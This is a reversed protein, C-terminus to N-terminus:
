LDQLYKNFKLKSVSHAANAMAWRYGSRAIGAHLYRNQLLWKLKDYIEYYRTVVWANNSGYPLSTEIFEDAATMLVCFNALAEVGFVGPTFMYFENLVIHATRLENVVTENSVNILEFYEFDFGECKLKKIAARVLQTGKIIPSTPAHVVKLTSENFKEALMCFKDDPYFYIFPLSSKSLYSSQDVDFNFVLDAYINASLALNKKESEYKEGIMKPLFFQYYNSAVELGLRTGLQIELHPSRIDNGCFFCCIKKCRKKLFSFEFKRGDVLSTLYGDSWVYVFGDSINVLYGLLVPGCL